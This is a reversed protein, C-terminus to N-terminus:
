DLQFVPKELAGTIALKFGGDTSAQVLATRGTNDSGQLFATTPEISCKLNLRSKNLPDKLSITGSARGLFEDGKINVDSISLNQGKLEAKIVAEKLDIVDINLFPISFDVSGGSLTLSAKGNEDPDSLGAGNYTVNGALAGKLSDKIAAPLRSDPKIQIDEFEASLSLSPARGNKIIHVFGTITGDYAECYFGYEHNKGLLSWLKPRIIVKEAMFATEEPFERIRCDVGKLKLGLPFSLSAKEMGISVGPSGAQVSAQIYDKLTESPFMIYLLTMFLIIGYM